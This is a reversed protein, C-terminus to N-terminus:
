KSKPWLLQLSDTFFAAMSSSNAREVHALNLLYSKEKETEDLIGFVFNAVMRKESDTTEDLSVWIKKNFGKIQLEKIYTQYLTPVYKKRLVSESPAFHKTYKELFVKVDPNNIKHLPINAALFTKCLDMSFQNISPDNSYSTLLSQSCNTQSKEVFKKHKATGLHQQVNFVKCGSITCNCLVCFLVSCDAKFVGPYDKVIRANFEQKTEKPM